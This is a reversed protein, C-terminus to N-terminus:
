KIELIKTIVKNLYSEGKECFDIIFQHDNIYFDGRGVTKLQISSNTALFSYMEQDELAKTKDKKFNSSNHVILNRVKSYNKIEEWETNLSSLDIEIVKEIYKRCKNIIGQGSLDNLHLQSGKELQAYTCIRSFSSEFLSYSTAFTSNMLLEIYTRDYKLLDDIFHDVIERETDPHPDKEIEDDIYKELEKQKSRILDKTENVYDKIQSFEIQIYDRYIVLRKMSKFKSRDIKKM